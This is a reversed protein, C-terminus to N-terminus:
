RRGNKLQFTREEIAKEDLKQQPQEGTKYLLDCINAVSKESGARMARFFLLKNIMENKKLNTINQFESQDFLPPVFTKTTTDSSGIMYNYFGYKKNIDCFKLNSEKNLREIDLDNEKASQNFLM